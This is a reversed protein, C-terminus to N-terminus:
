SGGGPGISALKDQCAEMAKQFAPDATRLNAVGMGLGGGDPDPDAMDVGHDRMCQAFQRAQEQQQPDLQVSQGGSPALDRCATMGKQVKQLDLGSSRMQSPDFQGDPGPDPFDPVGNKRMCDAFKRGQQPDAAASASASPTAGGGAASAVGDGKDAQGCGALLVTLVLAAGIRHRRM